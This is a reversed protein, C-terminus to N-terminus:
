CLTILMINVNVNKLMVFNLAKSGVQVCLRTKGGRVLGLILRVGPRPTTGVLQVRPHPQPGRVRLLLGGQGEAQVLEVFGTSDVSDVGHLGM